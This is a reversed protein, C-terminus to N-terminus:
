AITIDQGQQQAYNIGDAIWDYFKPFNLGGGINSDQLRRKWSSRTGIQIEEKYKRRLIHVYM